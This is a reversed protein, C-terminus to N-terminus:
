YGFLTIICGTFPSSHLGLGATFFLYIPYNPPLRSSSYALLVPDATDLLLANDMEARSRNAFYPFTLSLLFYLREPPFVVAISVVASLLLILREQKAITKCIGRGKRTFISRATDLRVGHQLSIM